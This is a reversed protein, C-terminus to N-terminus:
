PFGDVAAAVTAVFPLWLFRAAFTLVWVLVLPFKMQDRTLVGANLLLPPIRGEVRIFTSQVLGWAGATKSM